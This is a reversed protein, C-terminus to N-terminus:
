PYDKFIGVIVEVASGLDPLIWGSNSDIVPHDTIRKDDSVLITPKGIM